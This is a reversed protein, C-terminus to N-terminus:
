DQLYRANRVPYPLCIETLPETGIVGESAIRGEPKPEGAARDGWFAPEFGKGNAVFRLPGFIM